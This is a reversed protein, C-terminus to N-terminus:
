GPSLVVLAADAQALGSLHSHQPRFPWPAGSGISPVARSSSRKRAHTSREDRWLAPTPEGFEGTGWRSSAERKGHTATQLDDFAAEMFQMLETDHREAQAALRSQRRCETAFASSSAPM